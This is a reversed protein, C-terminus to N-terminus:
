LKQESILNPAPARAALKKQLNFHPHAFLKEWTIRKELDFALMETILAQTSESMKSPNFNIKGEKIASYIEEPKSGKFPFEHAIMKYFIVGLSYIDVKEPSYAQTSQSTHLLLGIIEPAKYYIDDSVWTRPKLPITVM